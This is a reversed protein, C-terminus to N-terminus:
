VQNYNNVGCHSSLRLLASVLHAKKETKDMASLVIGPM